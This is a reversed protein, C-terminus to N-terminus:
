IREQIPLWTAAEVELMREFLLYVCVLLLEMLFIDLCPLM